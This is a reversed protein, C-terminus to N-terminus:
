KFQIERKYGFVSVACHRTHRRFGIRRCAKISRRNSAEIIIMVAHKTENSGCDKLVGAHLAALVGQGRFSPLVFYDYGYVDTARVMIPFGYREENVTPSTCIWMYGAPAGDRLALYAFDGRAIRERFRDPKDQVCALDPFGNADTVKKVTLSHHNDMTRAKDRFDLRYIAYLICYHVGPTHVLAAELLGLFGGEQYRARMRSIM